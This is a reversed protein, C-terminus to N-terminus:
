NKNPNFLDERQKFKDFESNTETPSNNFSKQLIDKTIWLTCTFTVKHQNEDSPDETYAEISKTIEKAIMEHKMVKALQVMIEGHASEM